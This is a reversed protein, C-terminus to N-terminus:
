RVCTGRDRAFCVFQEIQLVEQSDLVLGEKQLFALDLFQSPTQRLDKGHRGGSDGELELEFTVAEVGLRKSQRWRQGIDEAPPAGLTSAVWRLVSPAQRASL